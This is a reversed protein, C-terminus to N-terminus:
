KYEILAVGKRRLKRWWFTAIGFLNAFKSVMVLCAAQAARGWDLGQSRYRLAMRALSAGYLGAVGLLLPPAVLLAGVAAAPLVGAWFVARRREIHSAGRHRHAIEAHAHGTRIARRYWPAFSHLNMDHSCMPADICWTEVGLARIRWFIDEDEAAIMEDRFGGSQEFIEARIVFRGVGSATPTAVCRWDQHALWNYISADPAEELTQGHVLAAKPHAQLFALATAPWDPLTIADGDMFLIFPARDPGLAAFGANRGRAATFPRAPDLHVIDAGAAQAVAVSDDRSGSDVYVVRRAQGVLARVTADLRTGENRGILVADFIM